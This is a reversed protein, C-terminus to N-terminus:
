HLGSARLLRLGRLLSTSTQGCRQGLGHRGFLRTRGGARGTFGVGGTLVLRRRIGGATGGDNGERGLLALSPGDGVGHGLGERFGRGIVWLHGLGGFIRLWAGVGVARKARERGDGRGLGWVGGM